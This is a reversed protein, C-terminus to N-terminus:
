GKTGGYREDNFYKTALKKMVRTRGGGCSCSPYKEGALETAMSKVAVSESNSLTVKIGKIARELKAEMKSLISFQEDTM